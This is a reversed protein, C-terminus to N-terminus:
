TKVVCMQPSNPNKKSWIKHGAQEPLWNDTWKNIEAGNGVTWLGGKKLIWSANLISRWIYSM